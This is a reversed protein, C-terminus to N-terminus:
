GMSDGTGRISRAAAVAENQCQWAASVIMCFNRSMNRKALRPLDSRPTPRHHISLGIHPAKKAGWVGSIGIFLVNRRCLGHIKTAFERFFVTLKGTSTMDRSRFSVAKKTVQRKKKRSIQNKRKINFLPNVVFIFLLYNAYYSFKYYRQM